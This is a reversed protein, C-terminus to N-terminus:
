RAYLNSVQLARSQFMQRCRCCYEKKYMRCNRSQRVVHHLRATRRGTLVSVQMKLIEKHFCKILVPIFFLFFERGKLINLINCLRYQLKVILYLVSNDKECKCHKMVTQLTETQSEPIQDHFYFRFGSDFIDNFFDDRLAWEKYQHPLEIERLAHRASLLFMGGYRNMEATTMRRLHPSIIMSLLSHYFIFLEQIIQTIKSEDLQIDKGFSEGLGILNVGMMSLLCDGLFEPTVEIVSHLAVRNQLTEGIVELESKKSFRKKIWNLLEM